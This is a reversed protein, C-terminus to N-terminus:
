SGFIMTIYRVIYGLFSDFVSKSFLLIVTLLVLTLIIELVMVWKYKKGLVFLLLCCALFVVATVVTTLFKLESPITDVAYVSMILNVGFMLGIVGLLICSALAGFMLVYTNKRSKKDPSKKVAPAEETKRAPKDEFRPCSKEPLSTEHNYLRCYGKEGVSSIYHRCAFCDVAASESM